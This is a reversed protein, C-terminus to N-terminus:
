FNKAGSLQQYRYFKPVIEFTLIFAFIVAFGCMVSAVAVRAPAYLTYVIVLPLMFSLYGIVVWKLINQFMKGPTKHQASLAQWISLILFGFYYAGFFEYLASPGTFIVYNGGCFSSVDNRPAFIFYLAFIVALASGLPLFHKQKTILSILRFGLVPLLTIAVLGFRSWSQASHNGCVQYESIQFAALLLLIGVAIKGFENKRYRLLTWFALASEIIVTALMVPPSFCFLVTGTKRQKPLFNMNINYCKRM